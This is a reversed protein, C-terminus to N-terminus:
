QEYVIGFTENTNADLWGVNVKGKIITGDEYTSGEPPKGRVAIFSHGKRMREKMWANLEERNKIELKM